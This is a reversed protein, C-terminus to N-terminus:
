TWRTHRLLKTLNAVITAKTADSYFVDGSTKDQEWKARSEIYRSSAVLFGKRKLPPLRQYLADIEIPDPLPSRPSIGHLQRILSERLSSAAENREKRKDCGLALWHGLGLGVFFALASFLPNGIVATLISNGSL